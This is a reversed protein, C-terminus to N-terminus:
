FVRIVVCFVSAVEQWYGLFWGSGDLFWRSFGLFLMAVMWFM